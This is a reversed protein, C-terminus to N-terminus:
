QTVEGGEAAARLRPEFERWEIYAVEHSCECSDLKDRIAACLRRLAACERALLIAKTELSTVPAAAISRIRETLQEQIPDIM